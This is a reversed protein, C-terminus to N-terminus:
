AGSGPLKEMLVLSRYVMAAGELRTLPQQPRFTGDEYGSIVKLDALALIMGRAKGQWLDSPLDPFPTIAEKVQCGLHTLIANRMTQACRLLFDRDALLKEEDRNSIFLLEILASPGPFGRLVGMGGTWSPDIAPRWNADDKVGRDKTDLQQILAQQLTRALKEGEKNGHGYWTEIGRADPAAANCHLSVLLDCGAENAATARESSLLSRDALWATIGVLKLENDLYTALLATVNAEQLGSPGIAGPDGDKGHGPDIAIRWKKTNNDEM